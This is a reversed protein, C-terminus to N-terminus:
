FNWVKITKDYSWNIFEAAEDPHKSNVNIGVAALQIKATGTPDANLTLNIKINPHTKEFAGIVDKKYFAIWSSDSQNNLYLQLEVKQSSKTSASVTTKTGYASFVFSMILMISFLKFIGKKM